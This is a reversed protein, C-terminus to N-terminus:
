SPRPLVTRHSRHLPVAYEARCTTYLRSGSTGLRIELGKYTTLHRPVRPPTGLAQRLEILDRDLLYVVLPTLGAARVKELAIDLRTVIDTSPEGRKGWRIPTAATV